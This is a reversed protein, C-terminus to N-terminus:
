APEERAQDEGITRVGFRVCLADIRRQLRERAAAGGEDVADVADFGEVIALDDAPTLLRDALPFLEDTERQMHTRHLVLYQSALEELERVCLPEGYLAGLVNNQMGRMLRRDEFHDGLLDRIVEGETVSARDMLRPFLVREEKTQHTGDAFSDFVALLETAEPDLAEEAAVRELMRSLCELLAGIWRHEEGLIETAQM